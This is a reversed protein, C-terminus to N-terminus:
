NPVRKKLEAAQAQFKDPQKQLRALGANNQLMM